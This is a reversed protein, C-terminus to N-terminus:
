NLPQTMSFQVGNKSINPQLVFKSAASLPDSGALYEEYNTLGDGDADADPSSDADPANTFIRTAWANYLEYQPLDQSIWAQLLDIAKQDLVTSGAPPMRKVPTSIRPSLPSHDPSGALVVRNSADGLTDHLTGNVINAFSLPTVSRADWAAL